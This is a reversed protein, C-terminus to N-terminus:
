IPHSPSFFIDVMICGGGWVHNFMPLLSALEEDRIDVVHLVVMGIRCEQHICAKPVINRFCESYVGYGARRLYVRRM